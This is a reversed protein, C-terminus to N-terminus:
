CPKPTNQSQLIRDNVEPVMAYTLSIRRGAEKAVEDAISLKRYKKIVALKDKATRFEALAQHAMQRYIAHGFTFATGIASATAIKRDHYSLNDSMLPESMLDGIGRVQMALEALAREPTLITEQWFRWPRNVLSYFGAVGKITALTVALDADVEPVDSHRPGSEGGACAKIIAEWYKRRDVPEIHPPAIGSESEPRKGEAQQRMVMSLEEEAALAEAAMQQAYSIAWPQSNNPDIIGVIIKADSIAREILGYARQIDNPEVSVIPSVSKIISLSRFLLSQEQKAKAASVADASM